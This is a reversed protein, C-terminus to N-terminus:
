QGLFCSGRRALDPTRRWGEYFGGGPSNEACNQRSPSPDPPCSRSSHGTGSCHRRLTRCCPPRLRATPGAASGGPGASSSPRHGEREQWNQRSSPDLSEPDDVYSRYKPHLGYVDDASGVDANTLASSAHKPLSMHSSVFAAMATTHAKPQGRFRPLVELEGKPVVRRFSPHNM